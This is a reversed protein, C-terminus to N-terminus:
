FLKRKGWREESRTLPHKGIIITGYEGTELEEIIKDSVKEKKHADTMRLRIRDESVGGSSLTEKVQGLFTGGKERLAKEYDSAEESTEFYDPDTGSSVWLLTVAVDSTEGFFLNGWRSEPSSVLVNLMTNPDFTPHPAALMFIHPIYILSVAVSTFLGGKKGGWLGALIIPVFYLERYVIHLSPISMPALYHLATILAVLAVIAVVQKRSM